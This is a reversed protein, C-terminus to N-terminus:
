WPPASGNRVKERVIEKICANLFERPHERVLAGVADQRQSVEKSKKEAGALVEKRWDEGM